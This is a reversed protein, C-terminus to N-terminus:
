PPAPTLVLRHVAEGPLFPTPRGQAWDDFGSRYFPSLFHGSAGGPLQLYGESERGPSVAFRESAGFAGDQVRPMDHDGPLAVTPMDIWRALWPVAQSVPHRIRVPVRDGFRCAALDPCREALAARTADAQALLFERWSAAGPPLWHAPRESVLRWLPGDFQPPPLAAAGDLEVGAAAVVASWTARRVQRHFARVVRYDVSEPVARGTWAAVADRLSARDAREALAAADLLALLQERWPALFLARDDLQVALMDAPQAQRGIAVLGDRIQGARAGLDYGAGNASEEGSITRELEGSVTRANASWLRGSPPDVLRPHDSADRFDSSTTRDAGSARPVRGFITWAIRGDRDGILANQAPIGIRPAVELAEPVSRARELAILEYNTASPVMALWTGIACETAGAREREELVVGGEVRRVELQERPGDKVRLRERTVAFSVAEGSAGTYTGAAPDCPVWRLDLWDGYSNTFGWAIHGNSGAVVFPTGPLTVGNLDFGGGHLTLRARYWVIPVALGLHMDNAVLAAGSATHTGALAWNNSGVAARPAEGPQARRDLPVDPVAGSRGDRRLDFVEAPPVLPTEAPMGGADVPADWRTGAPFLFGMVAAARGAGVRGVLAREVELRRRESAFDGHQLQWWMAYGVLLSDEVRWPRPTARLLWYEWPRSDLSALGDNVGHVYAELSERHERPMALIAEVAIRRFQFLRAHRDLALAAPGFLQALEGAAQRRALDMQFYRDQAHAFGLGYALQLRNTAAVTLTGRVDRELTIPATIGAAPREGDLQPLSARLLLWLGTVALALLVLLTAGIGVLWRRM